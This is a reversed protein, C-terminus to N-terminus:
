FQTEKSIFIAMKRWFKYFRELDVFEQEGDGRKDSQPDNCYFGKLKGKEMEVGVLVILHTEKNNRFGVDVSVIVPKNNLLTNKFKEIGGEVLKKEFVKNRSKFEEQYGYLGYNHALLVLFSHTWGYKKDYGGISLGEKILSDLSFFDNGLYYKIIMALTAVGCARSHWSDDNVDLIQSFHPVNLIKKDSM